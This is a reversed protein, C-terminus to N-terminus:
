DFYTGKGELVENAFRLVDWRYMLMQGEPGIACTNCGAVNAFKDHLKTLALDKKKSRIRLYDTIEDNTLGLRYHGFEEIEDISNVGKFLVKRLWKDNWKNKCTQCGCTPARLARYKDASKCKKKM